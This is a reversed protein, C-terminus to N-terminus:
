GTRSSGARRSLEDHLERLAAEQALLDDDKRRITAHLAEVEDTLQAILADRIERDMALFRRDDAPPPPAAEGRPPPGAARFWAAEEAARVFAAHLDGAPEQRELMQAWKARFRERNRAYLFSRMREASSAGRDHLVRAGPEYYIAEGRARLATALDADVFYAPYLEDDM